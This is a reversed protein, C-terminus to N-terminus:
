KPKPKPQATTKSNKTLTESTSTSPINTTMSPDKMSNGLYNQLLKLPTTKYVCYIVIILGIAAIVAIIVFITFTSFQQHEENNLQQELSQFHNYLQNLNITNDKMKSPEMNDIISNLKEPDLKSILPLSTLNFDSWPNITLNTVSFYIPDVTIMSHFLAIPNSQIVYDDSIATCGDKINFQQNQLVTFVNTKSQHLSHNAYCQTRFKIPKMGSYFYQNNFLHTLTETKPRLVSTCAPTPNKFFTNSICSQQLQRSHLVLQPPMIKIPNNIFPDTTFFAYYAQNETIGIYPSEFNLKAQTDLKHNYTPLPIARYITLYKEINFIPIEILIKVLNQNTSPLMFTRTMQYFPTLDTSIFPNKFNQPLKNHIELILDTAKTPSLLTTSLKHNIAKDIINEIQFLRIQLNDTTMDMIEILSSFDASLEYYTTINDLWNIRDVIQNVKTMLTKTELTLQRVNGSNVQVQYNTANLTKVTLLMGQVINKQNRRLSSIRHNLSSIRGSNYFALGLGLIDTFRRHRNPKGSTAFLMLDDYMKNCLQLRHSIQNYQNYLNRLHTKVHNRSQSNEIDMLHLKKRWPELNFMTQNLKTLQTQYHTLNMEVITTWIEAKNLIGQRICTAVQTSPQQTPKWSDSAGILPTGTILGATLCLILTIHVM